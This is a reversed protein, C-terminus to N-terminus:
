RPAETNQNAGEGDNEASEMGKIQGRNPITQLHTLNDLDCLKMHRMDEAEPHIEVRLIGRSCFEIADALDIMRYQPHPAELGAIKQFADGLIDAMADGGHGRETEWQGM